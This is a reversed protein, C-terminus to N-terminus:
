EILYQHLEEQSAFSLERRSSTDRINGNIIEKRRYDFAIEHLLAIFFERSHIELFPSLIERLMRIKESTSVGSSVIEDLQLRMGFEKIFNSLEMRSRHLQMKRMHIGSLDPIETSVAADLLCKNINMIDSISCDTDGSASSKCAIPIFGGNNLVFGGNTEQQIKFGFATLCENIFDLTEQRSKVFESYDDGLYKLNSSHCQIGPIPIL